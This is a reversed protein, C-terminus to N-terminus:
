GLIRPVPQKTTKAPKYFQQMIMNSAHKKTCHHAEDFICLSLKRMAVFGHCLADYLVGYTSVIIEMDKLVGDWVTQDTWRDVGDESALLRAQYAPLNITITKYHQHCLAVTPALFWVLKNTEELELEAKTRALARNYLVDKTL